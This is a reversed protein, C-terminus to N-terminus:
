PKKKQVRGGKLNNREGYQTMSMVASKMISWSTYTTNKHFGKSREVRISLCVGNYTM